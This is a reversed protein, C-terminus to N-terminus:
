FISISQNLRIYTYKGSGGDSGLFGLVRGIYMYLICVYVLATMCYLLDRDSIIVKQNSQLPEIHRTRFIYKDFTSYYM